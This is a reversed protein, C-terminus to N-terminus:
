LIACKRRGKSKQQLAARTAHEFVERVGEKNRASCELYAFAGAIFFIYMTNIVIAEVLSCLSYMFVSNTNNHPLGM